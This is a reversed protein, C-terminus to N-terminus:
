RQRWNQRHARRQTYARSRSFHVFPRPSEGVTRVKHDASVGIVEFVPGDAARIRFRKGIASDGPWYRRAMTDNIIAVGPSGVTDREDFDRGQLLPVGITRFYGATVRTVDTMTGRDGTAYTRGDIFINQTHLNPSFPLREVLAASM